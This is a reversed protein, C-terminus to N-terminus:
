ASTEQAYDPRLGAVQGLRVRSFIAFRRRLTLARSAAVVLMMFTIGVSSM